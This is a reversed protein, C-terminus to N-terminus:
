LGILLAAIGIVCSAAIAFACQPKTFRHFAEGAASGYRLEYLTESNRISDTMSHAVRVPLSYRAHLPRHHKHSSSTTAPEPFGIIFVSQLQSNKDLPQLASTGHISYVATQNTM